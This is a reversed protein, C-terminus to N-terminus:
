AAYVSVHNASEATFPRRDWDAWRDVLRLGVTAAAADLQDPFLYRIRYPRLRIGAESIDVFQGTITQAAPDRAAVSLVVREPEISRVTVPGGPADDVDTPVFAEIALHGGPALATAVWALCAGQTDATALNFFTNYACFVVAFRGDAALAPAAMDALVARIRDGGPKARLHRLMAASADIGWTTVGSDALPIALRGTGVGLELVEGDGALARVRDVTAAVDSIREYWEDYVDAFAEGYTEPTYGRV